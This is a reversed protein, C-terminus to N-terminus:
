HESQGCATGSVHKCVAMLDPNLREVAACTKEGKCVMDIKELSWDALSVATTEEFEDMYELTVANSAVESEQETDGNVNQLTLVFPSSVNEPISVISSGWIDRVSEFDPRPSARFNVHSDVPVVAFEWGDGDGDEPFPILEVDHLHGGMVGSASGNLVMLVAFEEGSHLGDIAALLCFVFLAPRYLRIFLRVDCDIPHKRSVTTFVDPLGFLDCTELPVSDMYGPLGQGKWDMEVFPAFAVVLCVHNFSSGELVWYLGIEDVPKCVKRALPVLVGQGKRCMCDDHCPFEFADNCCAGFFIFFNSVTLCIVAISWVLDEETASSAVFPFFALIGASYM